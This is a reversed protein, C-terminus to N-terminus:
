DPCHVAAEPLDRWNLCPLDSSCLIRCGWISLSVQRGFEADTFSELSRNGRVAPIPFTTILDSCAFGM